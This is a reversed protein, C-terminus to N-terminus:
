GATRGGGWSSVQSADAWRSPEYRCTDSEKLPRFGPRVLDDRFRRGGFTKRCTELHTCTGCSEPPPRLCGRCNRGRFECDFQCEAAPPTPPGREGSDRRGVAFAAAAQHKEGGSRPAGDNPGDTGVVREGLSPDRRTPMDFILHAERKTSTLVPMTVKASTDKRVRSDRVTANWVHSTTAPARISRANKPNHARRAAAAGGRLIGGSSGSAAGAPLRDGTVANANGEAPTRNVFTNGSERCDGALPQAPHIGPPSCVDVGGNRQRTRIM